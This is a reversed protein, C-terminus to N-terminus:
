RRSVSISLPILGALLTAIPTLSLWTNADFVLFPPANIHVQWWCGFGYGLAVVFGVAISVFAAIASPRHAEGIASFVMPALLAFQVSYTIFFFNLPDDFLGAFTFLGYLAILAFTFTVIAIRAIGVFLKDQEPSLEQMERRTTLTALVDTTLSHSCVTLFTNVTSVAAFVLGSVIFMAAFHAMVDQTPLAAIDLLPNNSGSLKSQAAGLLTPMVNKDFAGWLGFAVGFFSLIFFYFVMGRLSISFSRSACVRQWQDMAVLMWGSGIVLITLINPFGLQAVGARADAVSHWVSLPSLNRSFSFYGIFGILVFTGLTLLLANAIDSDVLTKMGGNASFFGVLLALGGFLYMKEVPSQPSLLQVAISLEFLMALSLCVITVVSAVVRIRLAAVSHADRGYARALYDHITGNNDAAEIYERYKPFFYRFGVFNMGINAIFFLIGTFGFLYGWTTIFVIFNGLSLNAAVVAGVFGRLKLKGELLFFKYLTQGQANWGFARLACVIAIILGLIAAMLTSNVVM